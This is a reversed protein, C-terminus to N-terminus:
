GPAVCGGGIKTGEVFSDTWIGSWLAGVLTLGPEDEMKDELVQLRNRSVKGTDRRGVKPKKGSRVVQFNDSSELMTNAKVM